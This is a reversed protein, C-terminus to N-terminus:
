LREKATPRDRPGLKMIKCIFTRYEKALEKDEAQAFPKWKQHDISYQTTDGIIEWRAEGKPLFDSYSLPVPGFFDIRKVVVHNPYAEDDPGADKPGPM